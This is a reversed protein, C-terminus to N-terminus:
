VQTASEAACTCSPQLKPKFSFLPQPIYATSAHGLQTRTSISTHESYTSPHSLPALRIGGSPPPLLKLVAICGLVSAVFVSTFAAIGKVWQLSKLYRVQPSMAMEGSDPDKPGMKQLIWINRCLRPESLSYPLEELIPLVDWFEESLIAPLLNSPCLLVAAAVHRLFM